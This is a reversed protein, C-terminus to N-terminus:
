EEIVDAADTDEGPLVRVRSSVLTVRVGMELYASAFEAGTVGSGVVVLHEPLESLDYVQRWTLSREGDPVAGPLVRPTAGTALLVVDAAIRRVTGDATVAEVQHSSKGDQDAAFRGMGAVLEVGETALRRRVDESQARALEKVRRHVVPTDIMAETA